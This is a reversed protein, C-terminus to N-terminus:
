LCTFLQSPFNERSLSRRLFLLMSLAIGHPAAGSVTSNHSGCNTGAQCAGITSRGKFKIPPVLRLDFEAAEIQEAILGRLEPRACSSM